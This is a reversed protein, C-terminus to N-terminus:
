RRRGFRLVRITERHGENAAEHLPTRGSDNVANARAGLDKALLLVAAHHGNSAALHLPTDGGNTDMTNVDAGLDALLM